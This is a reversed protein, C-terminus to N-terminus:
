SSKLCCGWIDLGRYGWKRYPRGNPNVRREGEPKVADAGAELLIKSSKVCAEATDYTGIPLDASIMARTRGRAVAQTARVMDAMTVGTTDAMGLVVMGLSDGVHILDVGAEDLIRALPYDYATLALLAQGKPWSRLQDPTVRSASM